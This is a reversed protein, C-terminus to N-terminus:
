LSKWDKLQELTLFPPYINNWTYAEVVDYSNFNDFDTREPFCIKFEKVYENLEIAAKLLTEQVSKSQVLVRSQPDNGSEIIRRMSIIELLMSEVQQYTTLKSEFKWYPHKSSHETFTTLGFLNFTDKVTLEEYEKERKNFDELYQKTIM